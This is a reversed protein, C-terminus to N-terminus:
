ADPDQEETEIRSHDITSGNWHVVVLNPRTSTADSDGASEDSGGADSGSGDDTRYEVVISDGAEVTDYESAFADSRRPSDVGYIRVELADAEVAQGGAHTIEVSSEGVDFEFDVTPQVAQDLMTAPEDGDLYEVVVTDGTEVDIELRDAAALTDAVDSWQTAAPEGDVTVRYDSAPRSTEGEYVLVRQGADTALDFHGPPRAYHAFVSQTSSWGDGERSVSIAVNEGYSVDEVVIETGPELADVVEELPRERIDEVGESRRFEFRGPDVAVDASYTITLTQSEHDFSGDFARQGGVVDWGLDRTVDELEPDHWEIAVVSLFPVDLQFSDGASLTADADWPPDVSEGDVLLELTAADVSEEGRVELTALDAEPDYRVGFYVDPSNDPQQSDSMPRTFTLAALRGDTETELDAPEVATSESRLLEELISADATTGEEFVAAYTFTQESAERDLRVGVGVTAVGDLDVDADEPLDSETLEPVAIQMPYDAVREFLRRYPGDDVLRADASERATSAAELGEAWPESGTSGAIVLGDAVTTAVDAPEEVDGAAFDGVYSRLTGVPGSYGSEGDGTSGTRYTATAVRDVAAPDLGLEDGAGALLSATTNESDESPASVTLRAADTGEVSAPIPALATSVADPLGDSGSGGPGDDGSGDSSGTSDESGRSLCGALAALGGAALLHRRSTTPVM